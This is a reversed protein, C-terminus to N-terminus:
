LIENLDRLDYGREQLTHYISEIHATDLNGYEIFSSLMQPSAENFIRLYLHIYDPSFSTLINRLARSDIRSNRDYSWNCLGVLAPVHSHAQIPAATSNRRRYQLM